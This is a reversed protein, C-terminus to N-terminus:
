GLGFQALSALSNQQEQLAGLTAELSIFQRELRTRKAALLINMRDIRDNLLERQDGLLDDKRAILGDFSRTLEDLSEQLVTGFGIEEASFLEEVIEPSRDYAARFKEENFELKNNAELRLGISSLRSFDPSVADFPRSIVQQLRRRIQDVTADGFLTGRAFSESNFSTKEDIKEQLANYADVFGRVSEVIGDMDQETSVTVDEDSAALLDITVGPIIEALSNTSSTVLMSAEGGGTGVSAVADRGRTLTSFGLNIGEADLIIEGRTGSITSAITLSYPNTSGGDSIVSASFRSDADNVARALRSLTDSAGVEVRVELSGDIFNEGAQATGALHLAKAVQGTEDTISLREEGGSHDIIVIGDGGDNIRAEIVDPTVHNIQDVLQGVTTISANINVRHVAGSALTIAITGTGITDGAGLSALETRRAVYQRQLNHSVVAGDQVPDFHGLIGLDEAVTGDEDFLRVVDAGGSSDTLMIGNGATNVAARLGTPNANILDIVDQLTEAANFDIAAQAGSSDAVYVTGLREIGAGGNLSHLLVTNLGGLLRRSELPAGSNFTAGDIGLDHAAQSTVNLSTEVGARVTVDGAAASATLTIGRGDAAIAAVVQGDNGTAYNIARILDGVTAVRYIDRGNISKGDVEGEIGLDAAARGSVDEVKLKPGERVPEETEDTGEPPDASAPSTDTIMIRSNVTTVSIALGSALIADRVDGLTTAQTL